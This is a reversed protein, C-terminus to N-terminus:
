AQRNGCSPHVDDFCIRINPWQPWLKIASLGLHCPVQKSCFCCTQILMMLVRQYHSIYSNFIAWDFYHIKGNIAHHIKGYNHLRKGSPLEWIQTKHIELTGSALPLCKQEAQNVHLSFSFQGYGMDQFSEGTDMHPRPFRGCRIVRHGKLDKRDWASQSMQLVQCCALPPLVTPTHPCVHSLTAVGSSQHTM